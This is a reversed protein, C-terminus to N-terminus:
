PPFDKEPLPRAAARLTFSFTCGQGEISEVGVQGGLKEVIRQVISLGLGHGAVRVQNLRTFPTFLRDKQEARIGPGNDRVWYRITDEPLPSAGLEVRAQRGGYKVANSIYNVWIEEVWPAYGIGLPWSNPQVIEVQNERIPYTLRLLAEQVIGAMNLPELIVEVKRIESLILLGELISDMKRGSQAIIRLSDQLEKATLTAHTNLLVESFGIIPYLTGKLDHAVTHAFADLETNRMQLERNSQNLNEQARRHETIDRFVLVAGLLRGQSDQIPAASHDIPIEKGDRSILLMRDHGYTPLRQTLATHIPTCPQDRNWEDVLQIIRTCDQGLAEDRNWGTLAEAVPNILQICGLLDTAIVAEGISQVTTALWQESAKLKKEMEHRYLAMEIVMQLEREEFPKLIYGYPETLRARQLTAPDAYATLYIVPIFFQQRLRDATEIGDLDRKLRIDMLVLDPRNEHACHLAEEGSAAIASVAYGLTTLANRLDLAVINEDEVVMIKTPNM